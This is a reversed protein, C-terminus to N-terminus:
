AHPNLNVLLAFPLLVGSQLHLIEHRKDLKKGQKGESKLTLHTPGNTIKIVSVFASDPLPM